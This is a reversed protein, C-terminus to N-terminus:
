NVIRQKIDLIDGDSLENLQSLYEKPVKKRLTEAIVANRQPNTVANQESFGLNESLTTQQQPNKNFLQMLLPILMKEFNDSKDGDINEALQTLDLLRAKMELQKELQNIKHNMRRMELSKAHDEATLIHAQERKWRFWKFFGM